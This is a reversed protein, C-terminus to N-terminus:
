VAQAVRAPTLRLATPRELGESLVEDVFGAPMGNKGAGPWPRRAPAPWEDYVVVGNMTRFASDPLPSDSPAAAM